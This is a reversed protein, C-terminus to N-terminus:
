SSCWVPDFLRNKKKPPPPTLEVHDSCMIEALIFFFILEGAVNDKRLRIKTQAKDVNELM